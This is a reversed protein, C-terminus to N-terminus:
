DTNKKLQLSRSPADDNDDIGDDENIWIESALSTQAQIVFTFKRRM